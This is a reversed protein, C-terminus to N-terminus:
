WVACLSCQPVVGNEMRAAAQQLCCVTACAIRLIHAGVIWGATILLQNLDNVSREGIGAVAAAMPEGAPRTAGLAADSNEADILQIGRAQPSSEREQMGM